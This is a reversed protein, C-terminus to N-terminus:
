STVCLPLMMCAANSSSLFVWRYLLTDSDWSMIEGLPIYELVMYIVDEEEDDIVEYLQVINPHAMQKMLSIEQHVKELATQVVMKRGEKRMTRTKRLMSKNSIKVAAMGEEGEKAEVDKALRVEAFSGSGLKRIFEWQNIRSVEGDSDYAHTSVQSEIFTRETM